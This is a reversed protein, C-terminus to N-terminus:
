VNWRKKALIDQAEDVIIVDYQEKIQPKQRQYENNLEELEMDHVDDIYKGLLANRRNMKPLNRRVIRIQKKM